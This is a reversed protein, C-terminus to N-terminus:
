PRDESPRALRRLATYGPGPVAIYSRDDDNYPTIAVVHGQSELYRVLRPWLAPHVDLSYAPGRDDPESTTATM